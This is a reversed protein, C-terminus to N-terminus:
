RKILTQEVLAVGLPTITVRAHLTDLEVLVREALPELVQPVFNRTYKVWSQLDAISTWGLRSYLLVLAREGAKMDPALVRCIGDQEWVLPHRREVLTDVAVQAETTSVNHFVRIM